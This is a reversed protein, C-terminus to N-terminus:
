WLQRTFWKFNISLCMGVTFKDSIFCAVFFCILSWKIVVAFTIEPLRTLALHTYSGIMIYLCQFSRILTPCLLSLLITPLLIISTNIYTRISLISNIANYGYINTEITAQRHFVWGQLQNWFHGFILRDVWGVYFCSFSIMSFSFFVSFLILSTFSSTSSPSCTRSGAFVLEAIFVTRLVSLL